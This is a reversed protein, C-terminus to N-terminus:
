QAGLSQFANGLVVPDIWDRSTKLFIILISRKLSAKKFNYKINGAIPKKFRSTGWSWIQLPCNWSLHQLSKIDPHVVDSYSWYSIREDSKGNLEFRTSVMLCVDDNSDAFLFYEQDEIYCSFTNHGKYDQGVFFESICFPSIILNRIICCTVSLIM